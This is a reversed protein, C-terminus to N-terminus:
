KKGWRDKGRGPIHQLRKRLWKVPILMSVNQRYQEYQAGFKKVLKREELHSGVIFYLTLIVNTTLAAADINRGWIVMIGGLYWPHRVFGLVGETSLREAVGSDREEIQRLGLFEKMDYGKAGLFFLTLGGTLLFVPILVWIGRYRFVPQSDISFSYLLVPVLLIVSLTNFFLRYYRFRERLFAEAKEKVSDAILLSHIACYSIWMLSLIVLERRM